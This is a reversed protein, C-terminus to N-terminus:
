LGFLSDLLWSILSIFVSGAVAWWFSEIAFGNVLRAALQLMLGNIVLLFLGLSLVILPFSFFQLVPRLLTNILGMVLAVAVAVGFSRIHIGELINGTLYVALATVLWHLVIRFM